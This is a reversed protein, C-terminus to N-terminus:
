THAKPANNSVKDDGTNQVFGTLGYSSAKKETFSSYYMKIM